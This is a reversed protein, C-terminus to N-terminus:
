KKESCKIVESQSPLALCDRVDRDVGPNKKPVDMRLRLGDGKAAPDPRGEGFRFSETATASRQGDNVVVRVSYTGATDNPEFQVNPIPDLAIARGQPTERVVAKCCSKRSWLLQGQPGLFEVDADFQLPGAPALPLQTIVVPLHVKMGAPIDRLRGADGGRQVSPKEIWAKVDEVADVVLVHPQWAAQALCPTAAVSVLAFLVAALGKM